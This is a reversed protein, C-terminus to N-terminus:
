SFVCKKEFFIIKKRAVCIRQPTANKSQMTFCFLCRENVHQSM